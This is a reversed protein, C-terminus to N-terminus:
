PGAEPDMVISVRCAKLFNLHVVSSRLRAADASSIVLDTEGTSRTRIAKVVMPRGGVRKDKRAAALTTAFGSMGRSVAFERSVFAPGYVVEGSEDVVVPVLSPKAGIGTADLILGTHPGSDTGNAPTSPKDAKPETVIMTTVADVQRIEEPLVFQGFGGTLNMTLEIEVTGDSLYEQRTLSANRALTTLGDRFAASQAVRDAVRSVANIRIASVTELLNSQAMRRAADLIDSPSDPSKGDDITAPAAVGNVRVIGASWDICGTDWAQILTDNAVSSASLPLVFLFALALIHLLTLKVKM